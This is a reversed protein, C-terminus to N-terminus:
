RTSPIFAYAVVGLQDLWEKDLDLLVLHLVRVLWQSSANLHWIYLDSPSFHGDWCSWVFVIVLTFFSINWIFLYFWIFYITIMIEHSVWLEYYIKPIM